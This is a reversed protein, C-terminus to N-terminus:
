VEVEFSICCLPFPATYLTSKNSGPTAFHSSYYLRAPERPWALSLVQARCPYERAQKGRLAQSQHRDPLSLAPASALVAPASETFTYFLRVRACTGVSLVSQSFHSPLDLRLRRCALSVLSFLCTVGILSFHPPRPATPPSLRLHRCALVLSILRHPSLRLQYPQNCEM